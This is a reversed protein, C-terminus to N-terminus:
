RENNTPGLSTSRSLRMLGLSSVMTSKPYRENMALGRNMITLQIFSENRWLKPQAITRIVTSRYTIMNGIRRDLMFDIRLICARLGCISAMLALYLFRLNLSGLFASCCCSVMSRYLFFPTLGIPPQKGM